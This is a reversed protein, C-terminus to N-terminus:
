EVADVNVNIRVKSAKDPKNKKYLNFTEDVMKEIHKPGKDAEIKVNCEWRFWGSLKTIAAPAPGTIVADTAIKDLCKKFVHVVTAVLQSDKSKFLFTIMRSYPPYYLPKRTAMEQRAFQHHNHEKASEVAPHDPQWTQLFVIGEKEARGSRGAVQSLLQYMREGSRFSPFALETDANIVGVVTVNPFDLGKAVLQTGLLIDAEGQGFTNLLEAHANKGSTTDRDMRLIEAEPFLTSIEEETQQTGSGRPKMENDKCHVCYSAARQSYGCYHCRLQKKYKHYTLSVTCHPCEAIHGCSECQLYSAFGRRNYLLIIQEERELAEEIANFLPVALPGRMASKYQRLDLVRVEPLPVNAHRAPLQLQTYKKQAAGYLAIMSPTASGMVVVADNKYARMVATERAHYRPAPDFQKYSSEHEEDVIILGVNKVPAFIASRAGIAIRKEGNNLAHWADYRERNSLRSHLVAIDDGFIQYFRKITQPTLSIEPVLVIGGKGQELAYKLAHIYVETKGSGTVGFLLFGKYENASMPKKIAQFAAKQYANLQKIKSPDYELKPKIKAAPLEKQIILGEKEIRNLTYNDLLEHRRLEAHREPLEVRQLYKLAKVWKFDKGEKQNEKIADTITGGNIRDSWFWVKELNPETKLVSREWVELINKDILKQLAKQEEDDQWRKQAMKLPYDNEGEIVEIMELEQPQLDGPLESDARQIIEEAIFNLGVPLAAQIAEGWSCYYFQHIWHTLELLGKSLVPEDDLLKEVPKTQFSPKQQHVKVAMGIAKHNRLPVWVRMGPKIKSHLKEPVSYTFTKRVATPFAIDVYKM